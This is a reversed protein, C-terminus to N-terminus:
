FDFIFPYSYMLIWRPPNKYSHMLIGLEYSNSGNKRIKFSMCINFYSGYFNGSCVQSGPCQQSTLCGKICMREICVQNDGCQENASCIRKCIGNKCVENPLCDQNSSVCKSACVGDSCLSGAGCQLNNKCAKVPMDCSALPDGTM